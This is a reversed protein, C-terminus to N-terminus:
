SAEEESVDVRTKDPDDDPVVARIPVETPKRVSAIMEALLGMSIFQFGLIVLIVSGILLPRVRLAGEIVWLAAMYCLILGGVVFFLVGFRGFVHLPSRHRGSLFMVLLLDLFGNVFRASGFKSRGHRRPHHRVEREGVRWGQRAALVPIYRHLEGHLQLREVVERRYVKFGSNFDHIRIGTVRSTVLNFIRSPVRKTWPDRRRRKWGSVLDYRDALHAILTPIEEPDDQLDADLTVVLRTGRCYRFGTALALSKGVNARLVVLRLGPVASVKERVRDRTGDVSGDDVVLIEHTRRMGDLVAALKDILPGVTEAENYAPVVVSIEPGDSM